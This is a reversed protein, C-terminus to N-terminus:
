NPDTTGVTIAVVDHKGAFARGRQRILTIPRGKERLFLLFSPAPKILDRGAKPALAIIAVIDAKITAHRLRLGAAEDGECQEEAQTGQRRGEGFATVTRAKTYPLGLDELGRAADRPYGHDRHRIEETARGEV